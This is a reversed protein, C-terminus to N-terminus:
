RTVEDFAGPRWAYLRVGTSCDAPAPGSTRSRIELLKTGHPGPVLRDTSWCHYHEGSDAEGTLGLGLFGAIETGSAEVPRGVADLAEIQLWDSSTSMHGEKHGHEILEDTGDGDLDAVTYSTSIHPTELDLSGGLWVVEDKSVLAALQVRDLSEFTVLWLRVPSRVVTCRVRGREIPIENGALDGRSEAPFAVRAVDILARGKPCPPAASAAHAALVLAAIIAIRM